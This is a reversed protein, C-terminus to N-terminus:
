PILVTEIKLFTYLILIIGINYTNRFLINHVFRPPFFEIKKLANLTLVIYNKIIKKKQLYVYSSM